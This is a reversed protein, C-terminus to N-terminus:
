ITQQHYYVESADTVMDHTMWLSAYDSQTVTPELEMTSRIESPSTIPSSDNSGEFPNSSQSPSGESTRLAKSKLIRPTVSKKISSVVSKAKSEGPFEGIKLGQENKKIVRCLSFAGQLRFITM